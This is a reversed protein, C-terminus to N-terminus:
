KHVAGDARTSQVFKYTANMHGKKSVREGAEQLWGKRVFTNIGRRVNTIFVGTRDAIEWATFDAHPHNVFVELVKANQGTNTARWKEVEQPDLKMTNFYDGPMNKFYDPKYEEKPRDFLSPQKHTTM